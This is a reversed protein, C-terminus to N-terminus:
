AGGRTALREHRAVQVRGDFVLLESAGLLVRVRHGILRVPVSYRNMRVTVQGHRDVRPTFM